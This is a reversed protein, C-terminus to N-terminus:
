KYWELLKDFQERTVKALYKVGTGKIRLGIGKEKFTSFTVINDKTLTVDFYKDERRADMPRCCKVTFGEESIKDKKPSKKKKEKKDKKEKAKPEKEEKLIEEKDLATEKSEYDINEEM